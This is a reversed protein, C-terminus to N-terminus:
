SRPLPDSHAADYFNQIDEPLHDPLLQKVGDESGDKLATEYYWCKYELMALSKQMEEIQACLLTKRKQLLKLRKEYTDSGEQTWKIFQQIDKIELGSQKLCNIIRLTELEKEQFCRKGNIREMGPFLGEADYYRLTSIPMDFMESVEGITYKM